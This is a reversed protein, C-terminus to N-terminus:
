ARQRSGPAVLPKNARCLPCEEPLYSKVSLRVLSVPVESFVKQDGRDVLAAVGVLRAKKEEVIDLLEKISKGTTIVDEVVLVREGEKLDFGRRLRMESDEREAFVMRCGLAQAVAFGLVIGGLAPALVVDVQGSPGLSAFNEAIEKALKGALEPFQLIKATQLYTDSHRGSSLLFHGREIAGRQELVEMLEQRRM